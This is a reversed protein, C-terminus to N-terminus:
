ALYDFVETCDAALFLAARPGEFTTFTTGMIEVALSGNYATLKVLVLLNQGAKSIREVETYSM